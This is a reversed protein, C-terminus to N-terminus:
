IEKLLHKMRTMLAEQHGLRTAPDVQWGGQCRRIQKVVQADNMRLFIEGAHRVICAGPVHYGAKKLTGEASQDVWITMGASLAEYFRNAPSHFQRHSLDDEVYLTHRYKGLDIPIDLVGILQEQEFSYREKFKAEASKPASIHWLARDNFYRDFEKVRGDRFSGYYLVVEEERKKPPSFLNYALANWNVYRYDSPHKEVRHMCTSWVFTPKKRRIRDTFGRTVISEGATESTPAWISYDNQLWVVTEARRVMDETTAVHKIMTKPVNVMYLIFPARSFTYYDAKLTNGDVLYYQNGKKKPINDFLWRAIRAGAVMKSQSNAPYYIVHQM